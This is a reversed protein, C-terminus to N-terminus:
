PLHPLFAQAGGWGVQSSLCPLSPVSRVTPLLLTHTDPSGSGGGGGEGSNVAEQGIAGWGGRAAVGGM